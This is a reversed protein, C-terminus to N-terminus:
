EPYVARSVEPLNETQVPIQGEPHGQGLKTHGHGSTHGQVQSSTM